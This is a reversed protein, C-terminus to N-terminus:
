VRSRKRPFKGDAAVGLGVLVRHGPKDPNQAHDGVPAAAHRNSMGGPFGGGEGMCWPESPGSQTTKNPFVCQEVTKYAIVFGM